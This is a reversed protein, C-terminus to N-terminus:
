GRPGNLAAGTALGGDGSFGATGTGAVTTINGTIADIRRVRDGGSGEAFYLNGSADFAGELPSNLAAEIAAGGDGSFGATGTGAVTIITGPALPKLRINTISFDDGNDAEVTLTNEGVRLLSSPVFFSDTIVPLTTSGSLETIFFNPTFVGVRTGNITVFSQFQSVFGASAQYQDVQLISDTAPVSSLNFTTTYILGVPDPPLFQTNNSDDGVHIVDALLHTQNFDNLIQLLTSDFTVTNDTSTSAVNSNGTADVAAGAPVTAIVTGSTTMGSVAVNYTMGSGTVVATTAGATGSLTVDGTAFGAAPESFVVTFNIPSTGTPDVQGVAQNITVSPPVNDFTVTNDTSTSAANLNGAADTAVGAAISAIVSGSTTMGSVAVNFTTPGGAVTATTAGATGSLTVDGTAFGTVAESYVVTFNIPSATTPDPQTAAQNITVTPAANDFTITNDTSSSAGNSLGSVTGTAAGAPVLAIVTGPGTMGSVAVNYLAGSGTVTATTAGATGSLTVDGTAFGTVAENFVVTFNIPSASTPDAQGAAQNIAPVPPVLKGASGANFLAQVEAATLGRNYYEVEDILGHFRRVFTGAGYAVGMYLDRNNNAPLGTFPTNGKLVGDVYFDIETGTFVGAVHHWTDDLLSMNTGAGVFNAPDGTSGGKGFGFSLSGDSIAGQITWGTGDVFGHSKDIVNYLGDSGFQQPSAKIWLDVSFPGTPNL